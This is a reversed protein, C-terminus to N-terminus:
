GEKFLFIEEPKAQLKEFKKLVAPVDARMLISIKGFGMEALINTEEDRLVFMLLGHKVNDQLYADYRNKIREYLRRQGDNM